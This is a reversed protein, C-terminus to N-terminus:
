HVTARSAIFRPWGRLHSLENGVEVTRGSLWCNAMKYIGEHPDCMNADAIKGSERKFRPVPPHVYIYIYVYMYIHIYIYAYIYMYM